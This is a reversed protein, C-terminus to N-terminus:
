VPTIAEAGPMMADPAPMAMDMGPAMGAQEPMMPPMPPQMGGGEMPPPLMPAAPMTMGMSEPVFFYPFGPFEQLVTAFYAPDKLGVECMFMEHAATHNELKEQDEKPLQVFAEENMQRYHIRAHQMHYEVKIPARPESGMMVARNEGDAKKIAVTVISRLRDVEGLGLLEVAHDQPIIDPFEKKIDLIWQLRASKQQPLAASNKIRVDGCNRLDAMVFREKAYAATETGLLKTLRNEDDDYHDAMLWSTQKATMAVASMLGAVGTAAREQEQEDLATLAVAAVVGPPPQGRSTSYIGMIQQFDTKAEQKMAVDTHLMPQVLTPPVSGKFSVISTNNGLSEIKAAGKPMMWKPHAYLFKNRVDMSILNNYVALPGRGHTVTADGNMVAPTDIDVVRVVPIVARFDEGRYPNDKNILIAGRVFKVYRGSDLESTTVHWMHVVEVLNKRTMEECSDSDWIAVDSDAEIKDAKSPHQAKVTDINVYERWFMYEADAWDAKRQAFCDWSFVNKYVIEGQRLPRDIWLKEGTKSVMQEGTAPNVLPLRPIGGKEKLERIKDYLKGPPLKTPDDQIGAAAFVEKLWSMDYPGRNRDWLVLMLGESFIRKHRVLKRLRNDFDTDTRNWFAEILKEGVDATTRDEEDAGPDFSVAPRYKTMRAVDAEVTDVMHNYIVRPNKSKKIGANANAQEDRADRDQAHLQVGRYIALNKKQNSIREQAQQKLHALEANLWELHKEDNEHDVAWYPQAPGNAGAGQNADLEAMMDYAAM